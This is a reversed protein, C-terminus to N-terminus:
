RPVGDESLPSLQFNVELGDVYRVELDQQAYGPKTARMIFSPAGPVRDNFGIIGMTYAGDTGTSVGHGRDGWAEAVGAWEVQVRALPNGSVDTVFGHVKPVISSPVVPLDSPQTLRRTPSSVSCGFLLVATACLVGLRRM